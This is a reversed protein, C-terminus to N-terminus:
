LKTAQAVLYLYGRMILFDYKYVREKIYLYSIERLFYAGM